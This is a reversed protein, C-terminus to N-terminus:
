LYTAVALFPCEFYCGLNKTKYKFTCRSPVHMQGSWSVEWWECGFDLGGPSHSHLLRKTSWM